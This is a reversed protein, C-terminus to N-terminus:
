PYINKMLNLFDPAIIEESINIQGKEEEPIRKWMHQYVQHQHPKQPKTWKRWQKEREKLNFVKHQNKLNVSEEKLQTKWKVDEIKWSQTQIQNKGISQIEKNLNKICQMMKKMPRMLEESMVEMLEKLMSM